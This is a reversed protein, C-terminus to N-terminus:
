APLTLEGASATATNVVVAQALQEPPLADTRRALASYDPAAM